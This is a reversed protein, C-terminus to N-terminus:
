PYICLSIHKLIANNEGHIIICGAPLLMADFQIKMNKNQEWCIDYRINDSLSKILLHLHLKVISLLNPYAINGIFISKTVTEDLFAPKYIFLIYDVGVNRISNFRSQLNVTGCNQAM